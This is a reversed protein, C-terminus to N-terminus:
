YDDDYYLDEEGQFVSSARFEFSDKDMALAPKQKKNQKKREKKDQKKQVTKVVKLEEMEKWLREVSEASLTSALDTILDVVCKSYFPSAKLREVATIVDCSVSTMAEAVTENPTVTETMVADDYTMAAAKSEEETAAGEDKEQYLTLPSTPPTDSCDSADSTPASQREEEEKTAKEARKKKIFTARVAGRPRRAM